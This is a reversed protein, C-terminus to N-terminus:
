LDHDRVSGVEAQKLGGPVSKTARGGSEATVYDRLREKLALKARHLRSKVAPLSIGLTEALEEYSLGNYRHLIVAERQEDPLSMIAERVIRATDRRQVEDEASGTPDEIDRTRSDDEGLKEELSYTRRRKEREREKLCLNLTVKYLYTFFKAKAEFGGLARFVRVFVEQTLDEARTGDGTFRYVLNLVSKQYKRVLEEFAATDGAKFREVLVLDEDL